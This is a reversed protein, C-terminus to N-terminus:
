QIQPVRPLTPPIESEESFRPAVPLPQAELPAAVPQSALPAPAPSPPAPAPPPPAQARLPDDPWAAIVLAALILHPWPSRPRDGTDRRSRFNPMITPGRSRTLIMLVTLVIISSPPAQSLLMQYLRRWRVRRPRLERTLWIM